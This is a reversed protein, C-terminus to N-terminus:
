RKKFHEMTVESVTGGFISCHGCIQGTAQLSSPLTSPYQSKDYGRTRPVWVFFGSFINTRDAPPPICTPTPPTFRGSYTSLGFTFFTMTGTATTTLGDLGGVIRTHGDCLKTTKATMNHYTRTSTFSIYTGLSFQISAELWSSWSESCNATMDKAGLSIGPTIIAQSHSTISAKASSQTLNTSENNSIVTTTPGNDSGASLRILLSAISIRSIRM